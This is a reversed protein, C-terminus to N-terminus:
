KSSELWLDDTPSCAVTAGNTFPFNAKRTKHGNYDDPCHKRFFNILDPPLHTINISQQQHFGRNYKRTYDNYPNSIPIKIASTNQLGLIFQTFFCFYLSNSSRCYLQVDFNQLKSGPAAMIFFHHFQTKKRMDQSSYPFTWLHRLCKKQRKREGDVIKKYKCCETECKGSGM